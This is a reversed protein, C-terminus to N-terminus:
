DGLAVPETMAQDWSFPSHEPFRGPLRRTERAARLRASRYAEAVVDELFPKLSPSEAVVQQAQVRQELITFMWSRSRREPQFRWKLMHTLLVILHSRLEGRAQKGMGEVEELLNEWDLENARRRRLADAQDQTWAFFDREYLKTM